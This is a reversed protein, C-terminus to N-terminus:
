HLICFQTARDGLVPLKDGSKLKGQCGDEEVLCENKLSTSRHNILKAVRRVLKLTGYIQSHM